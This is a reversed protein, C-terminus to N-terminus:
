AAQLCTLEELAGQAYSKEIFSDMTNRTVYRVEVASNEIVDRLTADMCEAFDSSLFLMVDRNKVTNLLTVDAMNESKDLYIAEVTAGYRSYLANAKTHLLPKDEDVLILNLNNDALAHTLKEAMYGRTGIVVAWHERRSKTNNM